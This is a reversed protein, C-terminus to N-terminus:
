LSVGKMFALLVGDKCRYLSGSLFKRLERLGDIVDDTGYLIAGRRDIVAYTFDSVINIKKHNM